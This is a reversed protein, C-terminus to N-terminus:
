TAVWRWSTAAPMEGGSSKGGRGQSRIWPVLSAVVSQYATMRFDVLPMKM